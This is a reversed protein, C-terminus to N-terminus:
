YLPEAYGCMKKGTRRGKRFHPGHRSLKPQFQRGWRVRFRPPDKRGPDKRVSVMCMAM